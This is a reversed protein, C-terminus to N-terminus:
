STAAPLGALYAQLDTYIILFRRGLKRAPLDGEKIAATLTARALGTMAVADPLSVALPPSNEFRVSM